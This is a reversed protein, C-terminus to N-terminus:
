PKEFKRLYLTQIVFLFFDFFALFQYMMRLGEGKLLWFGEVFFVCSLGLRLFSTGRNLIRYYDPRRSIQFYAVGIFFDMMGLIRLYLPESLIGTALYHQLQSAFFIISLGLLTESIGTAGMILQFVKKWVNKM